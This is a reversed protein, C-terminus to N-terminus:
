SFRFGTLSGKSKRSISADRRPCPFLLFPLNERYFLSNYRILADYEELIEEETMSSVSALNESKMEYVYLPRFNLILVVSLSLCFLFGLFGTGLDRLTSFKM